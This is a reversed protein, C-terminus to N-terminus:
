ASKKFGSDSSSFQPAIQALITAATEQDPWEVVGIGYGSQEQSEILCENPFYKQICDRYFEPVGGAYTTSPKGTVSSPKDSVIDHFAVLGGERLLPAYMVFDQFVGFLSHDGDIFLVDLSRGKLINKVRALTRDDHSDGAITAIQRGHSALHDFTTFREDSANLDISILLAEPAACQSLLALTGGSDCGIECVIQPLNREVRELLGLIETPHQNSRFVEKGTAIAIKQSLTKAKTLRSTFSRALIKFWYRKVRLPAYSRIVTTLQRFPM